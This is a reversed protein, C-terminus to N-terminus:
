CEDSCCGVGEYWSLRFFVGLSVRQLCPVPSTGRSVSRRHMETHMYGWLYLMVLAACLLCGPLWIAVDMCTLGTAGLGVVSCGPPGAPQPPPSPPDQCSPADPCDGCSCKLVSNWCTPLTGDYPHIAPTATAEPPFDMQFPSGVPYPKRDKVMGLFELFEQLTM